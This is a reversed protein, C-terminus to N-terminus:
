TPAKLKATLLRERLQALQGRVSGDWLSNGVKLIAGGKLEPDVIETLALNKHFTNTLRELLTKRNHANLPITTTLTATLIGEEQQVLKSYYDAIDPLDGWREKLLLLILFQELFPPTTKDLYTKLAAIKDEPPVVPSLFFANLPDQSLTPLRALLQQRVRERQSPEIGIFLTKGWTAAVELFTM